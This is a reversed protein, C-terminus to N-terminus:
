AGSTEDRRRPPRFHDHSAADLPTLGEGEKLFIGPPGGAFAGVVALPLEWIVALDRLAELREPPIAVLLQYDEGGHLALSLGDGGRARELSAAFADVPVAKPDIWASVDSEECVSLLDGSLGDSVDIAAHAVEQEALSRGFALPPRPDLQARLCHLVAPASSESWVGREELTGESDLRAGHKLLRLGEAAAGLSGTVVALDGPAAGARRLIRDGHGLLTVEVVIPGNTRSVNGGVLSVGAEAARELLGDYLGDVFGLPVETSLCLSVTAYRPVGAMAAIDSLNMTLIKRGLLAPPTWERLFHVGEVVCDTTMLTLAGTEIVAADDGVGVVVGPGAPIRSRLHRLLDREGIEGVPTEPSTM